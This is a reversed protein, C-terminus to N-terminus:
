RYLRHRRGSLPKVAGSAATRIKDHGMETLKAVTEETIAYIEYGKLPTEYQFNNTAGTNWIKPVCIADHLSMEHDIVRSIIQLVSVFIRAGGPTGLVLFPSGDDKLVITPSM